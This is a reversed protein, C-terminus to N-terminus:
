TSNNGYASDYLSMSEEKLFFTPIMGHAGYDWVGVWEILGDGM